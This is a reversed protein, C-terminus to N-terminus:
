KKKYFTSIYTNTNNVYDSVVIKLQHKNIKPLSRYKSDNFDYTLTKTKPEYEMLIWQGDITARYSKIGTLDDKIRVKLFRFNTLTQGNKFNIPVITPKKLDTALKYKGLTKTSTYLKNEKRKTSAYSNVYGKSNVRGIFLKKQELKPYESVDFSLTFSKHLPISKDHVKVVGKTVSFDFDTVDKYFSYKPIALTVNAKKVQNFLERKFHYPTKKQATEFVIKQDKGQVPITLIAKNGKIDSAVIDISYTMGNQIFVTGENIVKSYINLKNHPVIFCQQIRERKKYHHEYDILLNVYKGETFSFTELTHQYIKEKNVFAELKYIGNKNMAGNLRDFAKIGFGINGSAFIKGAVLNGNPLRTISLKQKINSQNIQSFDDIPYVYASVINPKKTDRVEIGFLLPNIIKETKSDRIEFHLHPGSSGGSNGSFAITAGKKVKLQNKQPFLHITYSEKNYQNNKIYAEIEPSFKQLHAYVSTYGNPHTIYIAKGYGWHQIKIRSVYGEAAALINFGERKQTKIDIGAHFHNTRLEGFTAALIIPIDVPNQFYDKPYKKQAFFTISFFLILLLAINKNNM